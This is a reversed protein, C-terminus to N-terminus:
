WEILGGRPPLFIGYSEMADLLKVIMFMVFLDGM